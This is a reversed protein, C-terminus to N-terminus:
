LVLPRPDAPRALSALWFAIPGIIGLRPGIDFFQHGRIQLDPLASGQEDTVVLCLKAFGYNTQTRTREYYHTTKKNMRKRTGHQTDNAHTSARPTPVSM